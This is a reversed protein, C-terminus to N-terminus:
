QLQVYWSPHYETVEGYDQGPTSMNLDVDEGFGGWENGTERMASYFDYSFWEHSPGVPGLDPPLLFSSFDFPVMEDM